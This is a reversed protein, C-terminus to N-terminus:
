IVAAVLTAEATALAKLARSVRARRGNMVGFVESRQRALLRDSVLARDHRVKRCRHNMDGLEAKVAQYAGFAEGAENQACLLQYQLLTLTHERQVHRPALDQFWSQGFIASPSKYLPVSRLPNMAARFNRSSYSM